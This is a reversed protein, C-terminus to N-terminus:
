DGGEEAPDPPKEPARVEKGDVLLLRVNTAKGAEKILTRVVATRMRGYDSTWLAKRDTAQRFEKVYRDLMGLTGPSLAVFRDQEKKSSRIFYGHERREVELLDM